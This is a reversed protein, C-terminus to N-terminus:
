KEWLEKFRKEITRKDLQYAIEYIIYGALMIAAGIGAPIMGKALEIETQTLTEFAAAICFFGAGMIAVAINKIRKLRMRKKMHERARM